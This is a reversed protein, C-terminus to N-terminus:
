DDENEDDDEIGLWEKITDFEFWMLDNLTTADIGDPYLDELIFELNDLQEGSLEKANEEAGCWFNFERLSNDSFIKM